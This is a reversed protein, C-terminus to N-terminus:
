ESDEKVVNTIVTRSKWSLEPLLGNSIHLINNEIKATTMVGARFYDVSGITSQVINLQEGNLTGADVFNLNRITTEGDGIKIRAYTHTDDPLYIILEGALPVFNPILEWNEQIDSKLQIRTKITNNSSTIDIAM